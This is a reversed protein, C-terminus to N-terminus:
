QLNRAIHNIYSEFLADIGISLAKLDKLILKEIKGFQHQLLPSQPIQENFKQLGVKVNSHYKLFLQYNQPIEHTEKNKKKIENCIDCIDYCLILNNRILDHLPQNFHAFTIKFEEMCNKLKGRSNLINNEIDLTKNDVKILGFKDNLTYLVGCLSGILAGVASSKLTFNM